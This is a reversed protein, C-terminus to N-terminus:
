AAYIAPHNMCTPNACRSLVCVSLRIWKSQVAMPKKAFGALTQAGKALKEIDEPKMDAMMSQMKEMEGESIEKGMM